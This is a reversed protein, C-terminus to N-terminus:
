AVLSTWFEDKTHTICYILHHEWPGLYSPCQAGHGPAKGTQQDSHNKNRDGNQEQAQLRKVAKFPLRGPTKPDLYNFWNSNYM